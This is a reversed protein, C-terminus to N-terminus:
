ERLFTLNSICFEYESRSTGSTVAPVHFQIALIKTRDFAYTDRPASVDAWRFENRGSIVPSPPYREDAGWYPSGDVHDETSSGDPLVIPFEVRLKGLPVQDVDFAIGVVDYLDPNYPSKTGPGADTAGEANLDLGIGAGWMNSYDPTGEACAPIGAGCNLVVCTEGRTCMVGGENPFGTVLPDPSTITSCEEPAHKGVNTCKAVGYKDGYAYWAGQVNVTNDPALRDVWGSADPVLTVNGNSSGSGGTGGTGGTAGSGSNGGTGGNEPSTSTGSCGSALFLVLVGFLPSSPSTHSLLSTFRQM